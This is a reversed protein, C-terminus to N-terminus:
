DLILGTRNQFSGQGRHREKLGNYPDPGQILGSFAHSPETSRILELAKARAIAKANVRARAMARARARAKVKGRQRPRLCAM